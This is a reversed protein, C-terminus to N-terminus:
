FLEKAPVLVRQQPKSPTRVEYLGFVFDSVPDSERIVRDAEEMVIPPTNIESQLHVRPYRDILMAM